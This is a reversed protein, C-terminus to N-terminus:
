NQEATSLWSGTLTESDMEGEVMCDSGACFVTGLIGKYNADNYQAGDAIEEDVAPEDVTIFTLAMGDFSAASVRKTGGGTVGIRMDRVKEVGVIETWTSGQHDNMRVADPFMMADPADADPAAHTGRMRAGLIDSMPVLAMAIEMAVARGHQAPTMPYGEAEPDDGTIDEVAM